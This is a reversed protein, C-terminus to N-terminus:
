SGELVKDIEEQLEDLWIRLLQAERLLIFHYRKADIERLVKDILGVSIGMKEAVVFTSAVKSVVNDPVDMIHLTELKQM